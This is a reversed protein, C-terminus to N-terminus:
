PKYPPSSEISPIVAGLATYEYVMSTSVFEMQKVTVLCDSDIPHYHNSQHSSLVLPQINMYWVQVTCVFEMQTVTVLCDSNIPHHHYSQHSALVLPQTNMYWLEYKSLDIGNQKATM